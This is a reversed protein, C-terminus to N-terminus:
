CKKRKKWMEIRMPANFIDYRLSSSSSSSFIHILFDFKSSLMIKDSHKYIYIDRNVGWNLNENNHHNWDNATFQSKKKIEIPKEYRVFFIVVISYIYSHTSDIPINIPKSFSFSFSKKNNNLTINVIAQDFLLRYTNLELSRFTLSVIVFHFHSWYEDTEYCLFMVSIKKNPSHSHPARVMYVCDCIWVICWVAFIWECLAFLLDILKNPNKHMFAARLSLQVKLQISAARVCRVCRVAWKNSKSHALGSRGVIYITHMAMDKKRNPIQKHMRRYEISAKGNSRFISFSQQLKKAEPSAFQLSHHRVITVSASLFSFKIKEYHALPKRKEIVKAM